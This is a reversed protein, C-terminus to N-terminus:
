ATAPAMRQAAHLSAYATGAALLEDHTGEEAIQGAELVLIRDAAEITSLRHAVALTTRGEMLVALADQVLRESEADLASTAEDLLLIPADKLLARAIAIRQREGGSLKAGREGVKTAYGEPQELIFQHAHAATAARVIEEHTVGPRGMAVNEEITGDFLYADQPVYGILERLDSLDYDRLDKGCISIEGAYEPYLGLLLKVLTSKGGGSPGVLAVVEGEAATLSVDRLATKETGDATYHFALDRVVLVPRGARPVSKGPKRASRELPEDLVEFVRGGGALGKQIAAVFQGLSQFLWSANGQVRVVAWVAGVLVEGGRFLVLAVALLGLSQVWGVFGQAADFAAQARARAVKRAAVDSSAAAYVGQFRDERGLMRTVSLGALLDSLRETMTGLSAQLAESRRRLVRAAPFSLGLLVLGMSLGVLGLKWSLAFIIGFGMAGMFVAVSLDSLNGLMAFLADNDNTCRSILDGSHGQELRAMPMGVIRGFLRDRVVTKSRYLSFFHCYQALAAIPMGHFFTGLALIIGRLLLDSNGAASANMVDQFVLAMVLNFCFAIITGWLVLGAAYVPFLRGTLSLARLFPHNRLEDM